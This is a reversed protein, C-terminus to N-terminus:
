PQPDFGGRKAAHFSAAQHDHSNEESAWEDLQMRLFREAHADREQQPNYPVPAYLNDLISCVVPQRLADALRGFQRRVIYRTFRRAAMMLSGQTEEERRKPKPEPAPAKGTLAAKVDRFLERINGAFSGPPKSGTSAEPKPRSSRPADALATM